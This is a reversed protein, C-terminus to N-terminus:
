RKRRVDQSFSSRFYPLLLMLYCSLHASHPQKTRSNYARVIMSSNLFMKRTKWPLVARSTVIFVFVFIFAFISVSESVCFFELVFTFAYAFSLLSLSVPISAYVNVSVFLSVFVSVSVFVSLPVSPSVFLLM